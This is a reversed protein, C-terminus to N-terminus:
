NHVYIFQKTASTYAYKKLALTEPELALLTM